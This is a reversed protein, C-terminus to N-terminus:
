CTVFVAAVGGVDPSSGYSWIDGIDDFLRYGTGAVNAEMGQVQVCQNFHFSSASGLFPANFSFVGGDSAVLWYGGSGGDGAM